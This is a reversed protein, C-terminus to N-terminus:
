QARRLLGETVPLCESGTSSSSVVLTRQVHALWRLLLISFPTPTECPFKPTGLLCFYSQIGNGKCVLTMTCLCPQSVGLCVSAKIKHHLVAFTPPLSIMSVLWVLVQKRLALGLHLMHVREEISSMDASTYTSCVWRGTVGWPFAVFDM